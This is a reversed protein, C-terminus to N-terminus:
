NFTNVLSFIPSPTFVATNSMIDNSPNSLYGTTKNQKKMEEEKIKRGEEEWKKKREELPDTTKLKQTDQEQYRYNNSVPKGEPNILRGDKGMTYDTNVSWPFNDSENVDIRINRKWGRYRRIRINFPNLRDEVTQDFRIKKGAPVRIEIDIRQGRFKSEKDIAYGSGLDLISDKYNVNYQIRNARWLAEERTRGASYKKIMVHYDSDESLIVDLRIASLKLTDESLDWGTSENDMWAFNGTFELAPESVKVIMKENAPQTISFNSDNHEYDRLDKSISAAFLTASIWGIVWLGGFTWGIYSNRSRVRIIRRIIWTIFAILPVGFFFILTGWAYLQQWKSTWLFNNVPWWAIGGFILVIFAIFLGFAISGAVFLFFVKFLVGFAHGIGNGTRRAVNGAESAFAKGRTNAFNKAKDGFNQASEKVENGWDKLRDKTQQIGEKVNQHITNVDVKEGRMEMKEYPSRAEPLVIWLIIYGLFFTGSLSGFFINPFLHFDYRWSFGNIINFFINLLIPAAFILRLTSAKINFYAALGGAVGGIVKDDPNRYLRKGSFGENEKSPLVIWLLIYILFGLGFGGFTIIAFLIRVIAPDVNLYNAIGSCVGGIFKDSSDRYLRKREKKESFDTYSTQQQQQQQQSKSDQTTATEDTEFDEPRGMSAMIEDVDADTIRDAGKRVKENMLEAIRSEIDNIIEDRGEENAFHRRLSEIYAQLKEYASDEIPIVRGSLNINIIKKM